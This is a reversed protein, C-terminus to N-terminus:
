KWFNLHDKIIAKKLEEDETPGVVIMDKQGHELVEIAPLSFTPNEDHAGTLNLLQKETLGFVIRGVNTWYVAGTCMLCPEFNTYLSCTKLFAPDYKRGAEIMVSTEAHLCPSDDIKNGVEILINGEADVLMAGFPHCGKEVAEHAVRVTEYLLEIDKSTMKEVRIKNM